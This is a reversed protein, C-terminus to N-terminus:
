KIKNNKLMVLQWINKILLLTVFINLPFLLFVGIASLITNKTIILTLFSLIFNITAYSIIKEGEIKSTIFSGVISGVSLFCTYNIITSLMDFNTNYYSSFMICIWLLISLIVLGINYKTVIFSAIKDMIKQENCM